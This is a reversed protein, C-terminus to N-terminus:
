GPFPPPFGVDIAPGPVDGQHRRPPIGRLRLGKELARERNGTSLLCFGPLQARCYAHRAEPAILALPVLGASRKAGTYPHNVSPKSVNSRFCALTRSSSNAAHAHLAIRGRYTRM